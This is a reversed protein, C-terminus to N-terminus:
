MNWGSMTMKLNGTFLKFCMNIVRTEASIHMYCVNLQQFKQGTHLLTVIYISYLFINSFESLLFKM